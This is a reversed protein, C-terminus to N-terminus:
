NSLYLEKIEAVNSYMLNLNFPPKMKFCKISFKKKYMECVNIYM